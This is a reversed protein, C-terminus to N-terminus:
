SLNTLWTLVELETTGTKELNGDIFMEIAVKNVSLKRHLTCVHTYTHFTFNPLPAQICEKSLSYHKCVKLFISPKTVPNSNVDVFVAAYFANTDDQNAYSVFYSLPGRLYNVSFRACFTFNSGDNEGLEM